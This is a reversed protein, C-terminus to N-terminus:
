CNKKKRNEEMKMRILRVSAVKQTQVDKMRVILFLDVYGSDEELEDEVVKAEVTKKKPKGGDENTNPASISGKADRCRENM